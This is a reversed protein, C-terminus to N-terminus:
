DKGATVQDTTCACHGRSDAVSLLGCAIDVGEESGLSIHLRSLVRDDGKFREVQRYKKIGRTLFRRFQRDGLALPKRFDRMTQGLGLGTVLCLAAQGAAVTEFAVVTERGTRLLCDDLQARTPEIADIVLEAGATRNAELLARAMRDLHDGFRCDIRGGSQDALWRHRRFELDPSSM